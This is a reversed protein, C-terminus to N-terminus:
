QQAHAHAAPYAATPSGEDEEESYREQQARAWRLGSLFAAADQYREHPERALVQLIVHNLASCVAYGQAALPPVPLTLKRTIVEASTAGSHPPHSTVLEYLVAGLAYLDARHDVREGRLQEPAMYVPSGVPLGMATLTQRAGPAALSRLERAIGFDALAPRRDSAILINEPKIDRHVIGYEHAMVLADAIALAIDIADLPSLRGELRLLGRLTDPFRPMVLFLEGRDEGWDYLPVVHPHRLHGIHRAEDRFREVFHPDTALLPSLVKMAVHRSARVDLAEYLEAMSGTTILSGLLYGGIRLGALRGRTDRSSATGIEGHSLPM